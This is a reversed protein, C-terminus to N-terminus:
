VCGPYVGAHFAGINFILHQESIGPRFVVSSYNDKIDLLGSSDPYLNGAYM